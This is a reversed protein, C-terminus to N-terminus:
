TSGLIEEALNALEDPNEKKSKYLEKDWIEIVNDNGLLIVERDASIEEMLRRPILFRGNGDLSLQLNNKFLSRKLQDHKRNYPNLKKRLQELLEEWHSHLHIELCQQFLHKRVVFRFEGQGVAKKFDAPLVIRGKVDAKCEFEGIFTVMFKLM